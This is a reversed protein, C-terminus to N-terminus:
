FRQRGVMESLSRCAFSLFFAAHSPQALRNIIKLDGRKVFGVRSEVNRTRTQRRHEQTDRRRGKGPESM